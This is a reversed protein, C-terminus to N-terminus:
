LKRQAEFSEFAKLIDKFLVKRGNKGYSFDSHNWNPIVRLLKVNAIHGKLRKVDQFTYILFPFKLKLISLFM